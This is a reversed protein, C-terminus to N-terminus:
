RGAEVRDLVARVADRAVAPALDRLCPHDIPCRRYFCPACPV